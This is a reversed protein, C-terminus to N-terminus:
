GLGSHFAVGGGDWRRRLSSCPRLSGSNGAPLSKVATIVKLKSSKVVVSGRAVKRANQGQRWLPANEVRLSQLEKSAQEREPKSLQPECRRKRSAKCCLIERCCKKSALSAQIGCRRWRSPPTSCIGLPLFARRFCVSPSRLRRGTLSWAGPILFVSFNRYRVSSLLACLSFSPTIARLM